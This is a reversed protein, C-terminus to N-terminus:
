VSGYLCLPLVSRPVVANSTPLFLGRLDHAESMELIGTHAHHGLHRPNSRDDIQASMRFIHMSRDIAIELVHERHQCVFLYARQPIPSQLLELLYQVCGVLSQRERERERHRERHRQTTMSTSSSAANPQLMPIPSQHSRRLTRSTQECCEDINQHIVYRRRSRRCRATSRHM